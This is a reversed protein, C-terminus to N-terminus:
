GRIVSFNGSLWDKIKLQTAEEKKKSHKITKAKEPKRLGLAEYISRKSDGEEKDVISCLIEIDGGKLVPLKRKLADFLDTTEKKRRPYVLNNRRVKFDIIAKKVFKFLDEKDLYYLGINNFYKNLYHNLDGYFLFMSILTSSAIPSNYKLFVEKQPLESKISGDFLWQNFIDYENM